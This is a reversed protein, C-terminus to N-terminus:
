RCAGRARAASLEEEDGGLEVTGAATYSRSLPVGEEGTAETAGYGIHMYARPARVGAVWCISM